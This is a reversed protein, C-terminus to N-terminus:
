QIAIIRAKAPHFYLNAVPEQLDNRPNCMNYTMRHRAAHCNVCGYWFLSWAWWVTIKGVIYPLMQNVVTTM